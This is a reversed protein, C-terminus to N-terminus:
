TGKDIEETVLLSLHAFQSELWSFSDSIARPHTSQCFPPEPRSSPTCYKTHNTKNRNNPSFPCSTSKTSPPNHPTTLPSFPHIQHTQFIPQALAETLAPNPPKQQSPLYPRSIPLTYTTLHRSHSYQTRSGENYAKNTRTNQSITTSYRLPYCPALLRENVVRMKVSPVSAHVFSDHM